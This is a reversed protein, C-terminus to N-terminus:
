MKFGSGGDQGHAVNYAHTDDVDECLDVPIGRLAQAIRYFGIFGVQVFHDIHLGTLNDITQTLLQAGAAVRQGHTGSAENYGEAFAANLKNDGHGPIAVY